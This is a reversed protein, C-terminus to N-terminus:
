LDKGIIQIIIILLQIILEKNEQTKVVVPMKYLKSSDYVRGPGFRFRKQCKVVEIDEMKFGTSDVYRELAERGGLSSPAGLDMLIMEDERLRQNFFVEDLTVEEEEVYVVNQTKKELNEIRENVKGIEKMIIEKLDKNSVWDKKEENPRSKSGSRSNERPRSYSNGRQGANNSPGSSSNGRQGTGSQSRWDRNGSKSRWFGQDTKKFDGRKWSDMRSRGGNQTWFATNEDKLTVRQGEVKLKKYETEFDQMIKSEEKPGRSTPDEIVELFRRREEEKIKQGGYLGEIMMVVLMYDCHESMKLRKFENVVKRFRDWVEEGPDDKEIKKLEEMEKLLDTVKEAYTKGFKDDMLDMVGKVTRNKENETRGLISDVLHTLDKRKKLVEKM